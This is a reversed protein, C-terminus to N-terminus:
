QNDTGKSQMKNLKDLVQKAYEKVEADVGANKQLDECHKKLADDDLNSMASVEPKEHLKQLKERQKDFEPQAMRIVNVDAPLSDGPMRLAILNPTDALAPQATEMRSIFLGAVLMLMATGFFLLMQTYKIKM